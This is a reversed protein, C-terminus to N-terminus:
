KKILLYFLEMRINAGNLLIKGKINTKITYSIIPNKKKKLFFPIQFKKFQFKLKKKKLYNSITKTSYSNLGKEWNSKTYNNRFKVLTDINESNFTGIIYLYGNKKLLNIMKNLAFSFDDYFALVGAAIILDFKYKKNIKIFDKKIFKCNSVSKSKATKILDASTDVGTFNSYKIKKRLERILSGTACGIDLINGKFNSGHSKLIM